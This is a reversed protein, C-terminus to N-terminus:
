IHLFLLYFYWELTWNYGYCPHFCKLFSTSINQELLCSLALIWCNSMFRKRFYFLDKSKMGANVMTAFLLSLDVIIWFVNLSQIKTDIQWINFKMINLYWAFKASKASLYISLLYIINKCMHFNNYNPDSSDEILSM